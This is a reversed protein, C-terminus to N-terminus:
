TAPRENLRGIAQNFAIQNLTYRIFRHLNRQLVFPHFASPSM